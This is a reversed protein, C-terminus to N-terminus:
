GPDPRAGNATIPREGDRTQTSITSSPTSTDFHAGHRAPPMLQRGGASDPRGAPPPCAESGLEGASADEIVADATEVFVEGAATSVSVVRRLFGYPTAPSVGGVMVDGPDLAALEPTMSAFTFVVGDPSVSALYHTTADTLVETTEPVIPELENSL